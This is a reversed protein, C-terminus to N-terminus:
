GRPAPYPDQSPKPTPSPSPSPEPAQYNDRHEQVMQSYENPPLSQWEPNKKRFDDEAADVPPKAPTNPLAKKLATVANLRDQMSLGDLIGM